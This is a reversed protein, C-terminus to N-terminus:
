TRRDTAGDVVSVVLEHATWRAILGVMLDVLAAEGRSGPRATTEVYAITVETGPDPRLGISEIDILPMAAEVLDAGLEYADDIALTTAAGWVSGDDTPVRYLGGPRVAGRRPVAIDIAPDCGPPLHLFSLREGVRHRHHAEAVAARLACPTLVQATGDPVFAADDARVVDILVEDGVRIRARLRPLTHTLTAAVRLAGLTRDSIM